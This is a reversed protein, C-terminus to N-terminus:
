GEAGDAKPEVKKPAKKPPEHVEVKAAQRKAIAARTKDSM